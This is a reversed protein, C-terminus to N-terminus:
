MATYQSPPVPLCNATKSPCKSSSVLTATTPLPLNVTVDDNSPVALIQSKAADWYCRSGFCSPSTVTTCADKRFSTRSTTGKPHNQEESKGTKRQEAEETIGKKRVVLTQQGSNKWSRRAGGSKCEKGWERDVGVEGEVGRWM